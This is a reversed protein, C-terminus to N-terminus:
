QALEKLFQDRLHVSLFRWAGQEFWGGFKKAVSARSMEFRRLTPTPIRCEENWDTM